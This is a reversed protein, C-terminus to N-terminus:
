ILIYQMSSLCVPTQLQQYKVVCNSIFVIAKCGFSNGTILGFMRFLGLLLKSCTRILACHFLNGIILCCVIHDLEDRVGDEVTAAAMADGGEGAMTDDDGGGGGFHDGGGSHDGGVVVSHVGDCGVMIKKRQMEWLDRAFADLGIPDMMM